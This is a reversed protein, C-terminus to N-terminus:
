IAGAWGGHSPPAPARERGPSAGRRTEFFWFYALSVATLVAFTGVGLIGINTIALDRRFPSPLSGLADFLLGFVEQEVLEPSKSRLMRGAPDLLEKLIKNATEHEWRLGYAQAVEEAPLLAPDVLTTFVRVAEHGGKPCYTVERLVWTAPLDPRFHRLSNHFRVRVLRDGPGLRRLTPAKMTRKVRVIFHAGRKLHLDLLFEYSTFNRDLVLLSGAPVADLLGHALTIEGSRYPGSRVGLTLRLGVDLLTVLRMM